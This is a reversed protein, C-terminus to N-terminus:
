FLMKLHAIAKINQICTMWRIYDYQFQAPIEKLFIKASSFDTAQVTQDQENPRYSKLVHLIEWPNGKLPFQVAVIVEFARKRRWVSVRKRVKPVQHIDFLQPSQLEAHRRAPAASGERESLGARTEGQRRSVPCVVASVGSGLVPGRGRGGVECVSGLGLWSGRWGGAVCSVSCLSVCVSLCLSSKVWICHFSLQIVASFESLLGQIHAKVELGLNQMSFKSCLALFTKFHILMVLLSWLSLLISFMVCSTYLLFLIIIQQKPTDWIVDKHVIRHHKTTHITRTTRECQFNWIFFTCKLYGSSARFRIKM